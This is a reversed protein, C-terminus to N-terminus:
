KKRERESKSWETYCATPEDLKSSIVWIGNLLIVNYIHVVVTNAIWRNMTTLTAEIDQSNYITSYHVNPHKHRKSNHNKLTYAWYDSQQTIHYNKKLFRWVTKWPSGQHRLHYLIQRCHLLSTDSVRSSPIAVWELIRAQLIGHVSYGPLSYAMTNCLTPCLQCVLVSLRKWLPQVLKCEWWNYLLNCEKRWVWELM